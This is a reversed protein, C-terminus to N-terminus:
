EYELLLPFMELSLRGAKSLMNSPSMQELLLSM